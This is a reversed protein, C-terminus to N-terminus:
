LSSIPSFNNVFTNVFNLRLHFVCNFIPFQLKKGGSELIWGSVAFLLSQAFVQVFEKQRELYIEGALLQNPNCIFHPRHKYHKTDRIAAFDQGRSPRL